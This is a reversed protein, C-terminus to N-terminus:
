RDLKSVIRMKEEAQLLMDLTLNYKREMEKLASHQKDLPDDNDAQLFPIMAFLQNRFSDSIGDEERVEKLSPKNVVRTYMEVLKRKLIAVQNYSIEDEDESSSDM